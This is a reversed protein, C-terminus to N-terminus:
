SFWRGSSERHTAPLQFPLLSVSPGEHSAERARTKVQQAWEGLLHAYVTPIMMIGQLHACCQMVLFITIKFSESSVSALAGYLKNAFANAKYSECPTKLM